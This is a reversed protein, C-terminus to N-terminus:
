GSREEDISERENDMLPADDKRWRSSFPVILLFAM